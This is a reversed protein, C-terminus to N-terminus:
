LIHTSGSCDYYFNCLWPIDLSFLNIKYLWWNLRQFWMMSSPYVPQDQIIVSMRHGVTAALVACTTQGVPAYAACPDGCFPTEFFTDWFFLGWLLPILFLTDWFLPQRTFNKLKPDSHTQTNSFIIPSLLTLSIMYQILWTNDPM